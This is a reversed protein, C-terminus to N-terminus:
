DKSIAQENKQTKLPKYSTFLLKKLDKQMIVLNGKANPKLQFFNFLAIEILTSRSIGSKQRIVDLAEWTEITLSISNNIRKNM